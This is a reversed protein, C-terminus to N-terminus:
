LYFIRDKNEALRQANWDDGGERNASMFIPPQIGAKVLKAIVECVLANAIACGTITSLPGVKQPLGPISVAADGHPAGNDIVVDCLDALKKGSPHRSAVGQSYARSTIGITKIGMTTAQLAMDIVVHNRGSTSTIILSDGSRAPSAALLERGLGAIRELRSTMTLPHVALNMGHPYIPNILMLGGSRYVMEETIIFSHSAGFSFLSKGGTIAEVLLDAAAQIVKAQSHEVQELTRIAQQFYEGASTM